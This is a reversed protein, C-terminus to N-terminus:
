IHIYTHYVTHIYLSQRTICLDMLHWGNRRTHTAIPTVHAVKPFRRNVCMYLIYVYQGHYSYTWMRRGLTSLDWNWPGSNSTWLTTKDLENCPQSPNLLRPLVVYILGCDWSQTAGAWCDRLKLHWTTCLKKTSQYVQGLKEGEWPQCSGYLRHLCHTKPNSDLQTNQFSSIKKQQPWTGLSCLWSKRKARQIHAGGYSRQWLSWPRMAM